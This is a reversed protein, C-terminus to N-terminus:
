NITAALVVSQRRCFRNTSFSNSFYIFLYIVIFRGGRSLLSLSGITHAKTQRHVDVIRNTKTRIPFTVRTVACIIAARM